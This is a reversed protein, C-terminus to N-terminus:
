AFADSSVGRSWQAYRNKRDQGIPDRRV